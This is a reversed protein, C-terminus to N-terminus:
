SRSRAGRGAAARLPLVLRVRLRSRRRAKGCSQAAARLHGAMGTRWRRWPGLADRGAETTAANFWCKPLIRRVAEIRMASAGKGQNGIVEVVFGADRLHDAYRLGTITNTAMGDHPLVCLAQSFARARLENVY